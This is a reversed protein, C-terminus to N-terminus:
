HNRCRSQSIRGQRRHPFESRYREYKPVRFPPPNTPFLRRAVVFINSRPRLSPLAHLHKFFQRSALTRAPSQGAEQEGPAVRQRSLRSGPIKWLTARRCSGSLAEYFQWGRSGERPTHAPARAPWGCIIQRHSGAFFTLRLPHEPEVDAGPSDPQRYGVRQANGGLSQLCELALIFLLNERIQIADESFVVHLFDHDAQRQPHAALFPRLRLLYSHEGLLQRLLESQRDM